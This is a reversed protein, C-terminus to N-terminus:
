QAGALNPDHELAILYEARFQRVAAEGSSPAWNGTLNRIRQFAEHLKKRHEDQPSLTVSPDLTPITDVGHSFQEPIIEPIMPTSIILSLIM